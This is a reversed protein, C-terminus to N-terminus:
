PAPVSPAIRLCKARQKPSCRRRCGSMSLVTVGAVTEKLYAALGSDFLRAVLPLSPRLRRVLLALDINGSDDDDALVVVAADALPGSGAILIQPGM